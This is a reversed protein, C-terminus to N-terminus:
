VCVGKRVDQRQAEVWQALGARSIRVKRGIRVAPFGDTWTLDYVTKTCVGLQEAAEAVSITLSENM